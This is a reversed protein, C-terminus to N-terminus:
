FKVSFGDGRWSVKREEPPERHATFATAALLIGIVQVGASFMLAIRPGWDDGSRVAAEITGFLPIPRALVYEAPTAPVVTQALIGITYGVAFMSIGAFIDARAQAPECECEDGRAPEACCVILLLVAKAM